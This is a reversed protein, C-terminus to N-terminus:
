VPSSRMRSRRLPSQLSRSPSPLRCTRPSVCAARCPTNARASEINATGAAFVPYSAAELRTRELLRGGEYQSLTCVLLYFYFGLQRYGREDDDMEQDELSPNPAPDNPDGGSLAYAEDIEHILKTYDLSSAIRRPIFSSRVGEVMALLLKLCLTKLEIVDAVDCDPYSAHLCRVAVDCLNTGILLRQNAPCPGQVLEILTQYLQCTLSITLSCLSRELVLLSNVMDIVLNVQTRMSTQVRIFEQMDSYHGECCCELFVLCRNALEVNISSPLCEALAYGGGGSPDGEHGEAWQEGGLAPDVTSPAPAAASPALKAEVQVTLESIARTVARSLAASSGRSLKRLLAEEYTRLPRANGVEHLHPALLADYWAHQKQEM